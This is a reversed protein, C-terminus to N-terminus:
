PTLETIIIPTYEGVYAGSINYGVWEEADEETMGQAVFCAVLRQWSYVVRGDSAGLIADDCDNWLVAGDEVLETVLERREAGTM